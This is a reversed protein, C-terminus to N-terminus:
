EVQRGGPGALEAQRLVDAQGSHVLAAVDPSGCLLRLRRPRVQPRRFPGALARRCGPGSGESAGRRLVAYGAKMTRLEEILAPDVAFSRDDADAASLLRDLRGRRLGRRWTITPSCGKAVLPPRLELGRGLDRLTNVPAQEALHPLRGRGLTEDAGGLVSRGRVHVGVLYVVNPLPFGLQAVPARVTFKTSQGPRLTRDAESPINQYYDSRRAGLPEDAAWQLSRTLAENNLIPDSPARWFIAQLNSLEVTSTNTVKGTLTIVDNAKPL